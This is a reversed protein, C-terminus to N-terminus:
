QSSSTKARLRSDLQDDLVLRDLFSERIGLCGLLLCQIKFERQLASSGATHGAAARASDPSEFDM